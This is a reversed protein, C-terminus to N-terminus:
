LLVAPMPIEIFQGDPGLMEHGAFAKKLAAWVQNKNAEPVVNACLEKNWQRGPVQRFADVGAQTYPTSIALTGPAIREIRVDFLRTAIKSALKVFGLEKLARAATVAEIGTQADAVLYILQNARERNGENICESYGYKERCDPGIGLEVSVADRLPRACVACRTALIRTSNLTEYSM